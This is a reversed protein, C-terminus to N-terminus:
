NGARAFAKKKHAEIYEMTDKGPYVMLGGKPIFLRFQKGEAMARGMLKAIEINPILPLSFSGDKELTLGNMFYRGPKDNRIAKSIARSPPNPNVPKTVHLQIDTLIVDIFKPSIRVEM